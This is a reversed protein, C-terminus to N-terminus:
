IIKEKSFFTEKLILYLFSKKIFSFYMKKKLVLTTMKKLFEIVTNYADYSTMIALPFNYGYCRSAALVKESFVQFLTKKKIPTIPFMGKPGDFGLRSGQGGAVILCGVKGNRLLELGPEIFKKESSYFFEEM